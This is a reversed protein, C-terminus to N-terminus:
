VGGQADAINQFEFPFVNVVFAPVPEALMKMHGLLLGAFLVVDGEVVADKGCQFLAIVPLFAIFVEKAGIAVDVLGNAATLRPADDAFGGDLGSLIFVDAAVGQSFCKAIVCPFLANGRDHEHHDVVMGGVLDGFTVESDDLVFFVVYEVM